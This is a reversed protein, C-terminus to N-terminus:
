SRRRRAIAAAAGGVLVALLLTAASVLQGWRYSPPEFAFTVEHRGAPLPVARFLFDARYLPAPAGDVMAVWGPYWIDALVLYGPAACEARVTVRNPRYDAITASGPPTDGDPPASGSEPPAGELLVTRRFDTRKLAALAHPRDPLPAAARVVFARPFVNDNAYVTYPPLQRVGGAIACFARPSDDTKIARWGEGEPPESPQLLYGAGMLDLLPRNRIPFNLLGELPVVPGDYDNIFQYYEKFRRVDLSNFGRVPEIGLMLPLAFGLPTSGKQGPLDRDLVRQHEATRGALYRVCAAPEYLEAQPRVGVLPWALAWLDALLVATWAPASPRGVLWLAAPVTVLLTPWYAHFHLAFGRARDLPAKAAVCLAAVGLVALM